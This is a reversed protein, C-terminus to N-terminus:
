GVEPGSGMSRGEAALSRRSERPDIDLARYIEIRDGESVCRDARVVNGWIGLTFQEIDYDPFLKDIGSRRVAQGVTSGVPVGIELLEQREVTAFVIEVRLDEVDNEIREM